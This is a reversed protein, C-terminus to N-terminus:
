VLRVSSGLCQIKGALIRSCVDHASGDPGRLLHGRLVGRETDIAERPRPPVCRVGPRVGGPFLKWLLQDSLSWARGNEVDSDIQLISTTTTTSTTKMKSYQRTRIAKWKKQLHTGHTKYNHM